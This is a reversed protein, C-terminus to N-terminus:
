WYSSTLGYPASGVIEAQGMICWSQNDRSSCATKGLSRLYNYCAIIDNVNTYANNSPGCGTIRKELNRAEAPFETLLVTLL